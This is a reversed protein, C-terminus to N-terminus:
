QLVPFQAAHVLPAEHVGGSLGHWVPLAWHTSPPM